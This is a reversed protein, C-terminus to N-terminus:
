QWQLLPYGDNRNETDVKFYTSSMTTVFSAAKMQSETKASCNTISGSNSVANKSATGTLYYSNKITGNSNAGVVGGIVNTKNCSLTGTSYCNTTNASVSAGLIGSIGTNGTNTTTGGINGRNYCYQITSNNDNDGSVGGIWLSNGGATYQLNGGNFCQAISSSSYNLGVIGGICSNTTAKVNFNLNGTNYSASLNGGSNNNGVIGGIRSYQVQNENSINFYGKNYSNQIVNYNFGLVGGAHIVSSINTNLDISGENNANRVICQKDNYGLNGGFFLTTATINDTAINGKNICETLTSTSYQYGVVGGLSVYGTSIYNGKIEANNYLKSAIASTSNTALVGGIRVSSTGNLTCDIIGENTCNTTSSDYNTGMVGGVFIHTLSTINGNIDGRNILTDVSSNSLNAGIGGGLYVTNSCDANGTLIGENTCKKINSNQSSRGIVGGLYSSESITDYVITGKNYCEEVNGNSFVVGVVGGLNDNGTVDVDIQRVEGENNCKKIISGENTGVVGGQVFYKSTCTGEINGKNYSNEVIGGSINLGVVGGINSCTNSGSEIKVKSENYCNIVQGNEFNKGVIAGVSIYGETTTGENGDNNNITNNSYIYSEIIGLDKIVGKNYSFLGANIDQASIYMGKITHNNGNLTGAFAKSKTNGIPMWIEGNWTGDENERAGLDIDAMINVIKGEFNMGNEDSNVKNAFSHLQEANYINYENEPIPVIEVINEDKMTTVEIGLETLSSADYEFNIEKIGEEIEKRKGDIIISKIGDSMNIKFIVTITGWNSLKDIEYNISKFNTEGFLGGFLENIKNAEEQSSQEYLDVAGKVKDFLGGQGTIVSITVGALILMIIVTIILAILTIGKNKVKRKDNKM